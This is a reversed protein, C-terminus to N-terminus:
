FVESNVVAPYPSIYGMVMRPFINPPNIASKPIPINAKGVPM